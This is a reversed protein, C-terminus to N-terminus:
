QRQAQYGREDSHIQEMRELHERDRDREKEKHSNPRRKSRPLIPPSTLCTVPQLLGAFSSCTRHFHMSGWAHNQYSIFIEISQHKM